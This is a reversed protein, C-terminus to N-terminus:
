QAVVVFPQDLRKRILGRMAPDTERQELIQLMPELFRNYRALSPEDGKQLATEIDKQTQASVLELRGVFVRETEAPEPLISLPLVRAVFSNPVIYLLRTGEEFWTDKWTELMARAEDPYLGEGTLASLVQDSFTELSSDLKPMALTMRGHLYNATSFGVADG